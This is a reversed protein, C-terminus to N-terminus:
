EEGERTLLDDLDGEIRALSSNVSDVAACVASMRAEISDFGREIVQILKAFQEDTM